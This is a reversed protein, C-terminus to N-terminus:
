ICERHLLGKYTKGAFLTEPVIAVPQRRLVKDIGLIRVEDLLVCLIKGSSNGVSQYTIEHFCINDKTRSFLLSEYDLRGLEKYREVVHRDTESLCKKVVNECLVLVPKCFLPDTLLNGTDMYLTEVVIQEGQKIQVLYMNDSHKVSKQICIILILICFSSVGFLVCWWLMQLVSVHFIYRLYNMIGGILVMITTALFWTRFFSINREGYPIAVTGMSIGVSIAIGKWGLLMTPFLICILLIGAGFLAGVMMKWIVIKKKLIRGTIYIVTYDAIFNVLFIIDLYVTIRL